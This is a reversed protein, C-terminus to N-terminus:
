AQIPTQDSSIKIMEGKSRSLGGRPNDPAIYSNILIDLNYTLNIIHSNKTRQFDPLITTEIKQVTSDEIFSVGFYPKCCFRVSFQECIGTPSWKRCSIKTDSRIKSRSFSSLKFYIQIKKQKFEETCMNRINIQIKSAKRIEEPKAKRFHGQKKGARM